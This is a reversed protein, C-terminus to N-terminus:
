GSVRFKKSAINNLPDRIKKMGGRVLPGRRARAWRLVSARGGPRKPGQRRHKRSREGALQGRRSRRRSASTRAPQGSSGAMEPGRLGQAGTAARRVAVRQVTKPQKPINVEPPAQAGRGSPAPPAEGARGVWEAPATMTPSVRAPARRSGTGARAGRLGTLPRQKYPLTEM